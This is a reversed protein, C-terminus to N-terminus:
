NNILYNNLCNLVVNGVLPVATQAAFHGKGKGAREIRVVVAFQRSGSEVFCM